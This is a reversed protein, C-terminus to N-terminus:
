LADLSCISRRVISLNTDLVAHLDTDADSEAWQYLVSFYVGRMYDGLVRSPIDARLEGNAQGEQILHEAIECVREHVDLSAARVADNVLGLALLNRALRKSHADSDGMHHMTAVMRQWVSVDLEKEEKKGLMETLVQLKQEFRYTVIAEKNPFYNFFTGKGVDADETIMEVTVDNFDRESLLRMASQYLRDRTELRRRERRGSGATRLTKNMYEREGTILELPEM